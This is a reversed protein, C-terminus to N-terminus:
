AQKEVIIRGASNSGIVELVRAFTGVTLFHKLADSFQDFAKCDKLYETEVKYWPKM